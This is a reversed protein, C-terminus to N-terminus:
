VRNEQGPVHKFADITNKRKSSAHPFPDFLTCAILDLYKQIQINQPLARELGRPLTSTANYIRGHGCRDAAHFHLVNYTLIFSSM